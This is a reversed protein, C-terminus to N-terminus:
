NKLADVALGYLNSGSVQDLSRELAHSIGNRGHGFAPVVHNNIVYKKAIFVNLIPSQEFM